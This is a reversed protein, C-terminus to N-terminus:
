SQVIAGNIATQLAVAIDAIAKAKPRLSAVRVEGPNVVLRANFYDPAPTTGVFEGLKRGTFMGELMGHVLIEYAIGPELAREPRAVLNAGVLPSFKEYNNKWTVQVYGRGRYRKGDGPITNGMRIADPHRGPDYKTFQPDRPDPWEAIPAYTHGTEWKATALIYAAQAGSAVRSDAALRGVLFRFGESQSPTLRGLERARGHLSVLKDLDLPPLM